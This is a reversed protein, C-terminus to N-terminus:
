RISPTYWIPITYAREAADLWGKIIQNRDLNRGIEDPLAYVMFAPTKGEAAKTLDNEM